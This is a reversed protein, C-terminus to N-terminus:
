GLGLVNQAFVTAALVSIVVVVLASVVRLVPGNVADGLLSRRNALIIVFTLIVPTVLGNLVQLNLLLDILNGPALAVSAGIIVQGTFLGLFLPAEAFTRSVSRETGAAEAVGYATALPVVVAALASAGLLGIGFLAEAAAGAVPELAQAAEKASSLPGTGGIAAATAIIISFSIFMALISGTISDVREDPYDDPGIGRDAVAAAQYLQMYPTITTGILAVVLFLFEKDALLHPLLSQSVVKEWDPHGLVMAIPYTIFVLALVLLVREVYRYSGFVVIAWIAVASIPVTIYRSVGFLEFAAGIGAFESIVIGVNAVILCVVAFAGVRLPFQERILSVLGEGTYAGIRACMEQVIVLAIATLSMVWLTRYGFEAGASAYTAIGGADNGAAAAILGPGIVVFARSIKDRVRARVRVPAGVAPM